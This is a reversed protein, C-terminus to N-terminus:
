GEDSYLLGLYKQTEHPSMQRLHSGCLELTSKSSRTGRGAAFYRCKAPNLRLGVK